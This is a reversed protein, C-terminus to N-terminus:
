CFFLPAIIFPMSHSEHFVPKKLVQWPYAGAPADVGNIIRGLRNTLSLQPPDFQNVRKGCSAITSKSVENATSFLVSIIIWRHDLM